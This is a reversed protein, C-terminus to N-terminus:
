KAAQILLENFRSSHRHELKDAERLVLFIALRNKEAYAMAKEAGMVNFATALADAQMASPHLVSVSALNHSLPKGTKPNLTHSYMHGDITFFNRYDGSTAISLNNLVIIQELSSYKGSDGLVPKEIAIRWPQGKTKSGSARLEGGIEVLFNDIGYSLLLEALQDVAYGKAIASLDIYAPKQKKISSNAADLILYQYGVRESLIKQIQEDSPLDQVKIDPGFGWLNVLPGVTIDFGGESLASIEQARQIVLFLEPSLQINENIAARNLLSLESESRYTSMKNEIDNLLIDAAKKIQAANPSAQASFFQLSYRTGMTDGAIKQVQQSQDSCSNLSFIIGAILIIKIALLRLAPFLQFRPQVSFLVTVVTKAVSIM